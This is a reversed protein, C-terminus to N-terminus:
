SPALAVRVLDPLFREVDKGCRATSASTRFVVRGDRRDTMAISLAYKQRRCLAPRSVPRASNVPALDGPYAIEVGRDGIAFGVDIRYRADAAPHMGRAVLATRVATEAAATRQEQGAAPSGLVFTGALVDPLVPAGIPIVQPACGALLMTVISAFVRARM